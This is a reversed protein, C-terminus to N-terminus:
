YVNLRKDIRLSTKPNESMEYFVYDGVEFDDYLEDTIEDNLQILISLKDETIKFYFDESVKSKEELDILRNKLQNNISLYVYESIENHGEKVVDGTGECENCDYKGEGNCYDCEFEGDGDCYDCEVNIYGKGDCDSCDREGDGDCNGCSEGEEEEGSGNCDSCEIVGTSGCDNCDLENMGNGDCNNCTINGNGYCEECEWEGSGGCLDCEVSPNDSEINLIFFGFLGKLMKVIEDVSMGKNQLFVLFILYTFDKSNLRNNSLLESIFKNNRMENYVYTPNDANKFLGKLKTSLIIVRSIEM